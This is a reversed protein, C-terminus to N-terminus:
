GASRCAELNNSPTSEPSASFAKFPNRLWGGKVTQSWRADRQRGWAAPTPCVVNQIRDQTKRLVKPPQVARNMAPCFRSAKASGLFTSNLADQSRANEEDWGVRWATLRGWAGWEPLWPPSRLIVTALIYLCRSFDLDLQDKLGLPRNNQFCDWLPRHPHPGTTM